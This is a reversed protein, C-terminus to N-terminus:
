LIGKKENKWKELIYFAVWGVKYTIDENIFRPDPDKGYNPENLRDEKPCKFTGTCYLHQFYLHHMYEHCINVALGYAFSGGFEKMNDLITGRWATTKFSGLKTEGLPGNSNSKIVLTLTVEKESFIRKMVEAGKIRNNTTAIEVCGKSYSECNFDIKLIEEKFEPSNLIKTAIKFASDAVLQFSGLKSKKLDLRLQITQTEQSFANIFM